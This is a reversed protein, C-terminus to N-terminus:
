MPAARAISRSWSHTECSPNHLAALSPSPAQENSKAIREWRGRLPFSPHIVGRAPTFVVSAVFRVRRPGRDWAPAGNKGRGESKSEEETLGSRALLMAQWWGAAGDGAWRKGVRRTEEDEAEARPLEERTLVDLARRMLVLFTRTLLRSPASKAQCKKSEQYLLLARFPRV